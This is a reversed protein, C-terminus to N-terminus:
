SIHPGERISGSDTTYNNYSIIYLTNLAQQGMLGQESIQKECYREM